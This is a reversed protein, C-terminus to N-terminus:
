RGGGRIRNLEDLLRDAVDRHTDIVNHQEEPDAAVDYLQM